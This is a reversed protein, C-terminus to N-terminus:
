PAIEGWGWHPWFYFNSKLLKKKKKLVISLTYFDPISKVKVTAITVFIAVLIPQFYSFSRKPVFNFCQVPFIVYIVLM